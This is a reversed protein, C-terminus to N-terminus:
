HAFKGTKAGKRYIYIGKKLTLDNLSNFTGVKVGSITYIEYPADSDDTIMDAAGAILEGAELKLCDYLVGTGSKCGSATLTLKNEGAKLLSAPFEVSEVRHRGAQNASRRLSGDDKLNWSALKEGNIGVTVTPSNSVGAISATFKANGTYETDLNFTVTWTGNGTQANYWDQAPNSMGVVFELTSPIGDRAEYSRPDDSRNFGDARRNNEGINWLLDSYTEPTWDVIGLDVTESDVIIGDKELEDTITGKTAYAYLSYEGKRVNKIEFNGDVDTKSWYIYKGGQSLINSGPEALVVQIADNGQGTTVNIKGSVTARDLPYYENEFWNFPWEDKLQRAKEKADAIMAERTDGSNVYIMFPGFIQRHGDAYKQSSAGIHEGQLMQITIPSKSTAHVTLEQRMPGGNLWEYSVPINWVGVKGNMLGHFDDNDIFQAWNYKTYISGDAMRYTADQITNESKEAEKMESNSPITGQMVDDVYGDLFTPALRTCVRTEKIAGVGNSGYHASNGEVIVYTYVGSEGKRLIYGQKYTPLVNNAGSTYLVEIYDDTQKVIEAKGASLARNKNSTYDFYIGNNDLINDTGNDPHTMTKAKGSADISLTIIGNSMTCARSDKLDVTMVDDAMAMATVTSLAALILTTKMDIQTNPKKNQLNVFFIGIGVVEINKM